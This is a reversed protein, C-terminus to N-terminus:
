LEEEEKKAQELKILRSKMISVKKTLIELELEDL